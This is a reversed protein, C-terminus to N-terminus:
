RGKKISLWSSDGYSLFRYPFQLAADYIKKWDEGVAAYILLLLTSKPQHFNTILADATKISYGPGIIIQTTGAIQDIGMRVAYEELWILNELLSFEEQTQYPTWQPLHFIQNEDPVLKENGLWYLSELTRLATTGVIITRENNIIKNIWAQIFSLSVEFYEAHMEHEGITSASVPKFTGAGVHLTVAGQRVDRDKLEQIIAEDFHLSATPAAVSGEWKAFLTQYRDYDETETARNLYPPIPLEGCADLVESFTGVNWNFQIIFGNESKSVCTAELIGTETGKQYKKELKGAKWKKAGGVFCLWQSNASCTLATTYDMGLPELCFIEIRAGSTKQFIIRAPIVKTNNVVWFDGPRFLAVIDKFNKHEINGEHYYLLQSDSRKPLPYKAIHQETLPYDFDEISISQITKM